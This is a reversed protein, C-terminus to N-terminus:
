SPIPDIARNREEEIKEKRYQCIGPTQDQQQLFQQLDALAIYRCQHDSDDSATGTSRGGIPTSSDTLPDPNRPGSINIPRIMLTGLASAPPRLASPDQGAVDSFCNVNDTAPTQIVIRVIDNGEHGRGKGWGGGGRAVPRDDGTEEWGGYGREDEGVM